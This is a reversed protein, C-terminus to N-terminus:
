RGTLEIVPGRYLASSEPTSDVSAWILVWALLAVMAFALLAFILRGSLEVVRQEMPGSVAVFPRGSGVRGRRPRAPGTSQTTHEPNVVRQHRRARSRELDYQARGPPDSLVRYADNLQRIRLGAQATANLDPHYTRALARYAAQIVDPSARPSIELVEYLDLAEEPRRAEPM